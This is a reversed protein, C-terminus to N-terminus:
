PAHTKPGGRRHILWATAGFAADLALVYPAAPSRRAALAGGALLLAAHYPRLSDWWAKGGAEFADPRLNFTYVTLIGAGIALALPAALLPYYVALVVLSVRATM